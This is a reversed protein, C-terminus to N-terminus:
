KVIASPQLAPRWTNYNTMRLYDTMRFYNTMRLLALPVQKKSATSFVTKAVPGPLTAATIM